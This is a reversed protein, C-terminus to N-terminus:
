RDDGVVINVWCKTGTGDLNCRSVVRVIEGDSLAVVELEDINQRIITVQIMIGTGEFALLAEICSVRNNVFQGFQPEENLLLIVRHFNRQAVLGLVNDFGELLRLPPHFHLLQALGGNLNDLVALDFYPRFGRFAYVIVPHLVNIVPAQRSLEPPTM